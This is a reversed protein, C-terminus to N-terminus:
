PDSQVQRVFQGKVRPRQEALRKRSQYRVKKEFCRDKRKLRFKTLAAERQSSWRYDVVMVGDNTFPGEDTGSEAATAPTINKNSGDCVSGCGSSNLYSKSRNCLGSSGSQANVFVDHRMGESELQDNRPVPRYISKCTNQDHLHHSEETHHEEQNSHNCNEHFAELHNVPNASWLPPGPQGCFLPQLLAGYGANLGDYGTGRIPVPLLTPGVRPGDTADLHDQNSLPSHPECNSESPESNYNTPHVQKLMTGDHPQITKNNYWSFASASSHNWFAGRTDPHKGEVENNGSASPHPRMLSLELFPLSTSKSDFNKAEPFHEANMCNKVNDDERVYTPQFHMYSCQPRNDIAGIFDIAERCPEFNKKQFDDSAGRDLPGEIIIESSAMVQNCTAAESTLRVKDAKESVSLPSHLKGCKKFTHEEKDSALPELEEQMSHPFPSEADADPNTCSSQSYSRKDSGEMKKKMCVMNDSSHNSAANNESVADLKNQPPLNGDQQEKPVGTLSQRRWVHQWLNKLENKRIPKVLFDAAGKMMCKFVMSICDQSSMMIVPINKCAEHEMIMTLLCFGSVSPLEVETLVLDIQCAKEQLIEWAKLGDSVAAVKYNCKRLLAAIIQRTSDDGEVLLIRLVMRPMFNEWRVAPTESRRGREVEKVGDTSAAVEGM